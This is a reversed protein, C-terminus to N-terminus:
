VEGVTLMSSALDAAEDCLLGLDEDSWRVDRLAPHVLIRRLEDSRQRADAWTRALEGLLDTRALLDDLAIEPRIALDLAAWVVGTRCGDRLSQLLEDADQNFLDNWAATAGVLHGRVVVTREPDVVADAAAQLADIVEGLDSCRSADVRVEQFRVPALELFRPRVSAGDVEVLLAGKPGQESPKFSRGQLNGPFAVFPHQSLTQRQHIHGLAWAHHGSTVLDELLCPSYRGHETSTGVHAHLVALHFGDGSPRPFRAHLGESVHRCPYSIGSVTVRTGDRATLEHTHVRDSPFLVTRAPWQRVATWGEEVPDHNGHAMFVWIGADDLRQCARLMRVQARLGREAGDYLDGALVVFCVQERIAADVLQDLAQLSAEMLRDRLAADTLALGHYPTDLHLDAAHLYHFTM